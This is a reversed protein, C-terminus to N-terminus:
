ERAEGTFLWKGKKSGECVIRGFTNNNSVCHKEMSITIRDNRKEAIEKAKKTCEGLTKGTCVTDGHITGIYVTEFKRVKNKYIEPVYKIKGVVPKEICQSKL